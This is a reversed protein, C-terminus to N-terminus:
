SATLKLKSHSRVSLCIIMLKKTLNYVATKLKEGTSSKNNLSETPSKNDSGLTTM